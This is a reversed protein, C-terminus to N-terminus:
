WTTRIPRVPSNRPVPGVTRAALGTTDSVRIRGDKALVRGPIAGMMLGESVVICLFCVALTCARTGHFFGVRERARQLTTVTNPDAQATTPQTYRIKEEPNVSYTMQWFFQIQLSCLLSLSFVVEASNIRVGLKKKVAELEAEVNRYKVKYIENGRKIEMEGKTSPPGIFRLQIPETTVMISEQKLKWRLIEVMYDTIQQKENGMVEIVLGQEEQGKYLGDIRYKSDKRPLANIMALLRPSLRLQRARSGKEPVINVTNREMDIDTWKITWGEGCRVGTEKLLQLFAASKKGVGGILQDVENETPIFPLRESRKYRPKEFSIGKWKYFRELHTALNERRV